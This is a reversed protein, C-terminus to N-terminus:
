WVAVMYEGGTWALYRRGNDLTVLAADVGLPLAPTGAVVVFMRETKVQTKKMENFSTAIVNADVIRGLPERATERPAPTDSCAVLLCALMLAFPRVGRELPAWVAALLTQM